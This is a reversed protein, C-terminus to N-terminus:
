RSMGSVGSRTHCATRATAPLFAAHAGVASFHEVDYAPRRNGGALSDELDISFFEVNAMLCVLGRHGFGIEGGLPYDEVPEHGGEGVDRADGFFQALGFSRRGATIAKPRDVREVTSALEDSSVAFERHQDRKDLFSPRHEPDDVPRCDTQGVGPVTRAGRGAAAIATRRLQNTRAFRLVPQDDDVAPRM